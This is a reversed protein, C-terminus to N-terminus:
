ISQKLQSLGLITSTKSTLTFVDDKDSKSKVDQKAKDYYKKHLNEYFGFNGNSFSKMLSKMHESQVGFDGM